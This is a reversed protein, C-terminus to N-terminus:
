GDVWDKLDKAMESAVDKADDKTIRVGSSSPKVRQGKSNIWVVGGYSVMEPEIWLDIVAGSNFRVWLQRRAKASGTGKYNQKISKIDLERKKKAFEKAVSKTFDEAKEVTDFIGVSGKDSQRSILRKAAKVLETATLNRDM